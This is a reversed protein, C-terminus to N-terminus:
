QKLNGKTALGNNCRCSEFVNMGTHANGAANMAVSTLNGPPPTQLPVNRTQSVQQPVLPPVQYSKQQPAAPIPASETKAEYRANVIIVEDGNKDTYHKYGSLDTQSVPHPVPVEIRKETNTIVKPPPWPKDIEGFIINALDIKLLEVTVAVIFVLMLAGIIRPVVKSKHRSKM